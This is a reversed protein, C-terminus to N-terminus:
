LTISVRPYYVEYQEFLECVMQGDLYTGDLEFVPNSSYCLEDPPSDVAVLSVPAPKETTTRAPRVPSTCDDGAGQISRVLRQLRENEETAKELAGRVARRKFSSDFLCARKQKDCRSCAAPYRTSADCRLKVQRCTTCAMSSRKAASVKLQPPEMKM